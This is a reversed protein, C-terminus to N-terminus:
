GWEDLVFSFTSESVRTTHQWCYQTDYVFPKHTYLSTSLKVCDSCKSVSCCSHTGLDNDDSELFDQALLTKEQKMWNNKYKNEKCTVAVFM